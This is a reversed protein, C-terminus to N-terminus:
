VLSIHPPGDRGVISWRSPGLDPRSKLVVELFSTPVTLYDAGLPAINEDYLGEDLYPTEPHFNLVRAQQSSITTYGSM